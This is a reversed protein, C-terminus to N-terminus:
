GAKLEGVIGRIQLLLHGLVDQRAKMEATTEPYRDGLTGAMADILLEIECLRHQFQEQAETVGSGPTDHAPPYSPCTQSM